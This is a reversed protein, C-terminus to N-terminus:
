GATNADIVSCLPCKTGFILVAFKFTWKAHAGATRSPKRTRSNQYTKVKNNIKIARM